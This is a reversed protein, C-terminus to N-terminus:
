EHEKFIMRKVMAKFRPINRCIYVKELNASAETWGVNCFHAIPQSNRYLSIARNSNALM